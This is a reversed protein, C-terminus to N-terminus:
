RDAPPKVNRLHVDKMDQDLLNFVTPHPSPERTRLPYVGPVQMERRAFQHFENMAENYVRIADEWAKNDSGMVGTAFGQLQWSARNLARAALLTETDALLSLREMCEGRRLEARQLLALGEERNIPTMRDSLGAEAALMRAIATFEKISGLFDGYIELRKEAWGRQLERKYRARENLASVSYSALAGVVVGVLTYIQASM